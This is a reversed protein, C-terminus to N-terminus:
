DCTTWCIPQTLQGVFLIDVYACWSLLFNYDYGNTASPNSRGRFEDELMAEICEEM